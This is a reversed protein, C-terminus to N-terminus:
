EHRRAAEELEAAEATDRYFSFLPFTAPKAAHPNGHHFLFV